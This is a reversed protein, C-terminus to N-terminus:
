ELLKYHGIRAGTREIEIDSVPLSDSQVPGRGIKNAVHTIPEELFNGADQHAALLREVEARLEKDNGCAQELFAAREVPDDRAAAEALVQELRQFDLAM